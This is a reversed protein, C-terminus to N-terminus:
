PQIFIRHYAKWEVESVEGNHNLDILRWQEEIEERNMWRGSMMTYFNRKNIVSKPFSNYVNMNMYNDFIKQASNEKRVNTSTPRSVTEAETEDDSKV